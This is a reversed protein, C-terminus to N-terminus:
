SSAAVSDCRGATQAAQSSRLKPKETSCCCIPNSDSTMWPIESLTLKKERAPLGTTM